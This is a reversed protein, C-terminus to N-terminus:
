TSPWTPRRSTATAAFPARARASRESSRGAAFDVAVSLWRPGNERATPCQPCGPSSPGIDDKLARSWRSHGRHPAVCSAVTRCPSQERTRRAAARASRGPRPVLSAPQGPRCAAAPGTASGRAAAPRRVGLVDHRRPSPMVGSSAAGRSPASIPMARSSTLSSPSSGVPENLARPAATPTARARSSPAVASAM